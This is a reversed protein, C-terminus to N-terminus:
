EEQIESKIGGDGNSKGGDGISEGHEGGGEGGSVVVKRM